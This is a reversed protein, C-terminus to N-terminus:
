RQPRFRDGIRHSSVVNLGVGNPELGKPLGHWMFYCWLHTYCRTCHALLLLFFRHGLHIYNFIAVQFQSLCCVQILCHRVFGGGGLIQNQCSM